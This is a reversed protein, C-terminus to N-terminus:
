IIVGKRNQYLEILNRYEKTLSMDYGIPYMCIGYPQKVTWEDPRGKNLVVEPNDGDLYVLVNKKSETDDQDFIFGDRFDELKLHDGACKPVGAVTIFQKGDQECMYRKAGLFVARDYIGESEWIGILHKKGKKDEPRFAEFDIGRHEALERIDAEISKNLKDFYPKYKDPHKMKASDTDGYCFDEPSINRIAELLDARQYATIYIGMSFAYNNKWFQEHLKALEEDTQEDSVSLTIFENDKLITEEFVLSTCAMGYSASNLIEKGRMYEAERGEVGKLTTKDGYLKLIYNVFDIDLYASTSVYCKKVEYEFDYFKQYTQLDVETLFMEFSGDFSILKGNNFKGTGHRNWMKASPICSISTYAKVDYFVMYFIYHYSEFDYDDTYCPMFRSAPFERTVCQFPYASARDFSGVAKIIRGANEVGALTMGGAYACKLVKYENHDEPQMDTIKRHHNINDRYLAKVEKRARGTQTYPISWINSYEAVYERLGHYMIEIDRESYELAGAPLESKPTYLTHYDLSDLKALGIKKGWQALSSNTLRYTCRFECNRYRFYLPKRPETYFAEIQDDGFVGRLYQYEYAANHIFCLFRVESPIFSGALFDFFRKFEELTRGYFRQDNFGFQWLYCINGKKCNKMFDAIADYRKRKENIRQFHKRVDPWTLVQGAGDIFYSSTEIDFCIIDDLLKEPHKKGKERIKLADHKIVNPFEKWPIM